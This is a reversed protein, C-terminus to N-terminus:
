AFAYGYEPISGGSSLDIDFDTNATDAKSVGKYTADEYAVVQYNKVDDYITFSYSTDGTVQQVEFLEFQNTDVEKYLSLNVTGGNSGAINGSVIYTINNYSAFLKSGQRSNTSTSLYYDRSLTLDILNLQQSYQKSVGGVEFGFNTYTYAVDNDSIYGDSYTTQYGDGKLEGSLLELQNSLFSSAAQIFYHSQCGASNLWYDGDTTLFSLNNAAAISNVLTFNMNSNIKTVTRSHSSVGNSAVSSRYLLKVTGTINSLIGSVAYLDVNITNYGHILNLGAGAASGSDFRHQLGMCGTVVNSLQSYSTFSQSGVKIGVTASADTNYMLEVACNEIVVDSEPILVQKSYRSFETSITKLPYTVEVPFEFYNVVQTTGTQTFTFTVWENIIINSFRTAISSWLEFTHTATASLASTDILYEVFGDGAGGQEKAPLTSTGGGDFAFTLTIDTANNNANTNGRLQIWRNKISLGAYGELLGGTGTLQNLVELTARTTGLSGQYEYPICITQVLTAATDEFQYSLEMYSYVARSTGSANDITVSLSINKTTVTGYNTNFYSTFDIPGIVGSIEEGSDVISGSVLFSAETSGALTIFSTFAVLDVNAVTNQWPYFFMASIFTIPNGVSNEPTNITVTGLSTKTGDAVDAVNGFRVPIRITKTKTAM